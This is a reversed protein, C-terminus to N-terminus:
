ILLGEAVGGEKERSGIGAGGLDDHPIEGIPQKVSEHGKDEIIMKNLNSSHSM